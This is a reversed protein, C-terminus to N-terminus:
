GCPMCHWSNLHQENQWLADVESDHASTGQCALFYSRAMAIRALCAHHSFSMVTTRSTGLSSLFFRPVQM